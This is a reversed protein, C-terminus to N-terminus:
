IQEIRPAQSNPIVFDMFIQMIFYHIEEEFATDDYWNIEKPILNKSGDKSTAASLSLVQILIVAAISSSRINEM